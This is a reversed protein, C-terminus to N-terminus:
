RRLCNPQPTFEVEWRLGQTRVVLTHIIVLEISALFEGYQRTDKIGTNRILLGGKTDVLPYIQANLERRAPADTSGTLDLQICPLTLGKGFDVTEYQM